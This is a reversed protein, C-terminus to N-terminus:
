FRTSKEFDFDSHQSTRLPLLLVIARSSVVRHYLFSPHHHPCVCPSLSRPTKKKRGGERRERNTTTESHIDGKANGFFKKLSLSVERDRKRKHGKNPTERKCFFTKLSLSLALTLKKEFLVERSNKKLHVRIGFLPDMLEKVRRDLRFFVLLFFLFKLACLFPPRV